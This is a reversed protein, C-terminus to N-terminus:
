VKSTFRDIYRSFNYRIADVINRPPVPRYHTESPTIDDPRCIPAATTTRHHYRVLSINKISKGVRLAEYTEKEKRFFLYFIAKGTKTPVRRFKYYKLQQQLQGCLVKNPIDSESCNNLVLRCEM